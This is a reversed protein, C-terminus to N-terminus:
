SCVVIWGSFLIFPYFFFQFFCLFTATFGKEKNDDMIVRKNFSSLFFSPSFFPFYFHEMYEVFYRKKQSKCMKKWQTMSLLKNKLNYKGPDNLIEIEREFSICEFLWELLFSVL